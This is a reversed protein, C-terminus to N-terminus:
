FLIWLMQCHLVPSKPESAMNGANTELSNFSGANDVFGSRVHSSSVPSSTSLCVELAEPQETPKSPSAVRDHICGPNQPHIGTKRFGSMLNVPTLSKPWAEAIIKPIDGSTPVHGDSSRVLANLALGFYNKFSSCRPAAFRTTHAPLCLLHIDNEKALKSLELSIHSAPGNQILLVPRAPPIQELLFHFCKLYLETNAWGKKQAEILGGLPAKVKLAESVCVLPFIIM